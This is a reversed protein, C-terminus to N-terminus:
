NGAVFCNGGSAKLDNCLANAEDRSLNGVRVRYVTRGGNEGSRIIPNRGNLPGAFQKKFRNSADKAEQESTPAALQVAFTGGGADKNTTATPTADAVKIRTPQTKSGDAGLQLPANADEPIAGRAAVPAAVPAAVVTKVDPKAPAVVRVTAKPKVVVPPPAAAASPTAPAIAPATVVPNAAVPAPAAPPRSVPAPVSALAAVATGPAPAVPGSIVSGDPRVSVTKVRKPPGFPNDPASPAADPSPPAVAKVVAQVVPAAKPALKLDIPQEDTAAVKSTAAVDNKVTAGAKDLISADQNPVVLGDPANAAVKVPGDQAKIVAINKPSAASSARWAFTGGVLAIGVAAITAMIYVPGRAPKHRVAAPPAAAFRWDDPEAGAAPEEATDPMADHEHREGHSAADLPVPHDDNVAHKSTLGHFADQGAAKVSPSDYKAHIERMEREFIAQPDEAAPAVPVAHGEHAHIAGRLEDQMQIAGNVAVEPKGSFVPEAREWTARPMKVVSNSYGDASNAPRQPMKALLSGLADGQASKPDGNVLRALEALPDSNGRDVPEPGRLRREFEELDVDPHRVKAAEVM